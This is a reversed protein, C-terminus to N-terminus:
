SNVHHGHKGGDGPYVAVWMGLKSTKLDRESVSVKFEQLYNKM